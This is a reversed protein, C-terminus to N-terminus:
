RQSAPLIGEIDTQANVSGDGFENRDGMVDMGSSQDTLRLETALDPLLSM